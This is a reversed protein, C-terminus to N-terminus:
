ALAREPSLSGNSLHVMFDRLKPRPHEAAFEREETDYGIAVQERHLQWAHDACSWAETVLDRWWHRKPAPAPRPSLAIMWTLVSPEDTVM